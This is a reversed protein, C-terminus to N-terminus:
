DRLIPTAKTDVQSSVEVLSNPSFSITLVAERAICESNDTKQEVALAIADRADDLVQYAQEPSLRFCKFLEIVGLVLADKQTRMPKIM